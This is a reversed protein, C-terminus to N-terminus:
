VPVYSSCAMACTSGTAPMSSAAHRTDLSVAAGAEDRHERELVACAAELVELPVVDPMRHLARTRRCELLTNVRATRCTKWVSITVPTFCGCTRQYVATTLLSAWRQMMASARSRIRANNNGTGSSRQPNCCKGASQRAAGSGAPTAPGPRGVCRMSAVKCPGMCERASRPPCCASACTHQQALLRLM